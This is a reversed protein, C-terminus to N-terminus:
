RGGGGLRRYASAVTRRAEMEPLDATCAAAVLTDLDDGTAGEQAARCAAWYLGANRNGAPQRAVWAALAAVDGGSPTGSTQRRTPPPDLFRRIRGFDVTAAPERADHELYANGAVTSPPAVVYGGASRFDVGHRAISGNHQTTGAFYLHWGGSPTGVLRCAGALLGARRLRRLSSIGPAGAKCDFDVVDPGPAGTAIAVNATPMRRWWAAVTDLDTTADKCGHPTAPVKAGPLCPFVPWGTRAYSLATEALSM